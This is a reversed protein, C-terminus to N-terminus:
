LGASSLLPSTLHAGSESDWIPELLPQAQSSLPLPQRLAARILDDSLTMHLSGSSGSELIVGAPTLCAGALLRQLLSGSRSGGEEEM